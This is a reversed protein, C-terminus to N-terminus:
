AFSQNPAYMVVQFLALMDPVTFICFGLSYELFYKAFCINYLNLKCYLNLNESFIV